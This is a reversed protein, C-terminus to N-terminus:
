PTARRMTAAALVLALVTLGLVVAVGLTGGAGLAGGDALRALADYAYTAPLAAALTELASAL